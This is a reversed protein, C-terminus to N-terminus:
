RSFRVVEIETWPVEIVGQAAKGRVMATGLNVYDADVQSGDSLVATAAYRYHGPVFYPPLTSDQVAQRRFTLSALRSIPVQYEVAGRRLTVTEVTKIGQIPGSASPDSGPRDAQGYGGGLAGM